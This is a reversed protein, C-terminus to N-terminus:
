HGIGGLALARWNKTQLTHTAVRVVWRIVYHYFRYRKLKSFNFKMENYLQNKNVENTNSTDKDQKEYIAGAILVWFMKYKVYWPSKLLSLPSPFHEWFFTWNMNKLFDQTRRQLHLHRKISFLYYVNKRSKRSYSIRKFSLGLLNCTDTENAIFIVWGEPLLHPLPVPNLNPCLCLVGM